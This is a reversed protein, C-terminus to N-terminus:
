ESHLIFYMVCGYWQVWVEDDQWDIPMCMHRPYLNGKVLADTGNEPDNYSDYIGDYYDLVELEVPTGTYPIKTKDTWDKFHCLKYLYGTFDGIKLSQFEMELSVSDGSKTVVMPQILAANGMSAQNQGAHWMRGSITYEGDYIVNEKKERMALVTNELLVTIDAVKSEEASTDSYIQEAAELVSALVVSSKETYKTSDIAKATNIIELLSAKKVDIGTETAHLKQMTWPCLMNGALLLMSLALVAIRCYWKKKM